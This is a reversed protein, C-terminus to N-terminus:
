NISVGCQRRERSGETVPVGTVRLGAGAVVVLLVRSSGTETRSLEVTEAM